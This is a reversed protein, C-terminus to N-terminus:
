NTSGRTIVEVGVPISDYRYENWGILREECKVSCSGIWQCEACSEGDGEISYGVSVRAFEGM